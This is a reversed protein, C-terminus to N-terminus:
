CESYVHECGWLYTSSTAWDVELFYTSGSWASGQLYSKAVNRWATADCSDCFIKENLKLFRQFTRGSIDFYIKRRPRFEGSCFFFCFSFRLRLYSSSLLLLQLAWLSLLLLFPLLFSQCRYNKLHHLLSPIFVSQWTAMNQTVVLISLLSLKSTANASGYRGDRTQNEQASTFFWVWM